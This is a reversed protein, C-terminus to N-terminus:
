YRGFVSRRYLLSNFFSLYFPRLYHDVPQKLFGKLRGQYNFTAIDPRDESFLTAFGQRSFDNWIFPFDDFAIDWEENLEAKFESTTSGRKGTLIAMLNNYTNDAVKVHHRM